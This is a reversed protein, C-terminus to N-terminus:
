EMSFCYFLNKLYILLIPAESGNSITGVVIVTAIRKM